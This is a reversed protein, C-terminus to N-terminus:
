LHWVLSLLLFDLFMSFLNMELIWAIFPLFVGSHQLACRTHLGFIISNLLDEKLFSNYLYNLPEFRVFIYSQMFM